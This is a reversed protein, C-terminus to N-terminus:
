GPSGGPLYSAARGLSTDVLRHWDALIADLSDIPDGPGWAYVYVSEAHRGPAVLLSLDGRKGVLGTQSSVWSGTGATAKFESIASSSGLPPHVGSPRRLEAETLALHDVLQALFRRRAAGSLPYLPTWAYAIRDEAPLRRVHISGGSRTSLPRVAEFRMAPYLRTNATRRAGGQQRRLRDVVISSAVFALALVTQGAERNFRSLMVAVIGGLTVSALSGPWRNV